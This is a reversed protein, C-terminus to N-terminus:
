ITKGIEAMQFAIEISTDFTGMWLLQSSWSWHLGPKDLAIWPLLNVPGDTEASGMLFYKQFMRFVSLIRSLLEHM